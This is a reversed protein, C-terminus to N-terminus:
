PMELLKQYLFLVPGTQRVRWRGPHIPITAATGGPGRPPQPRPGPRSHEPRRGAQRGARLLPAPAGKGPPRELTEKDRTAGLTPRRAWGHARCQKGVPPFPLLRGQHLRRPDRYATRERQEANLERQCFFPTKTSVESHYVSATCGGTRLGPSYLPFSVTLVVHGGPSMLLAWSRAGQARRVGRGMM